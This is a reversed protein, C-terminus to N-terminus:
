QAPFDNKTQITDRKLDFNNLVTITLDLTIDTDGANIRLIDLLNPAYQLLIANVEYSVTYTVSALLLMGGGRNSLDSQFHTKAVTNWKGPREVVRTAHPGPVPKRTTTVSARARHAEHHFPEDDVRADNEEPNTQSDHDGREVTHEPHNTTQQSVPLLTLRDSLTDRGLPRDGITEDRGLPLTHSDLTPREARIPAHSSGGRRKWRVPMADETEHDYPVSSAAM